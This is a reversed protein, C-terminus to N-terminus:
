RIWGCTNSNDSAYWKAQWSWLHVRTCAIFVYMILEAVAIIVSVPAGPLLEAVARYLGEQMPEHVFVRDAWDVHAGVEPTADGGQWGVKAAEGPLTM